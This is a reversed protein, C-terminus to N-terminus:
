RIQIVNPQLSHEILRELDQAADHDRVARTQGIADSKGSVADVIRCHIVVESSLIAVTGTVVADVGAVAGIRKALKSDILGLASSTLRGNSTLMQERWSTLAGTMLWGKRWSTLGCRV